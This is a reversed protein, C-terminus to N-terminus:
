CKMHLSRGAMVNDLVTMGQFLALNQFTRAVGRAAAERPSGRHLAEGRLTIRGRQPAYVGSICNLLSSKGAGNPGIIARVEHERVDFAIDELAKLGGFALCVGELALVVDGLHRAGTEAPVAHGPAGSAAGAGTADADHPPTGRLTATVPTM